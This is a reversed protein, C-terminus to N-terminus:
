LTYSKGLSAPEFTVAMNRLQIINSGAHSEICWECWLAQYLGSRHVKLLMINIQEGFLFMAWVKIYKNLSFSTLFQNTSSAM